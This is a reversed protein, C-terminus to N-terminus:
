IYCIKILRLIDIQKPSNQFSPKYLKKNNICSLKNYKNRCLGSEHNLLLLLFSICKKNSSYRLMVSNYEFDNKDIHKLKENLNM